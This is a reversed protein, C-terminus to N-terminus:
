IFTLSLVDWFGGGRNLGFVYLDRVCILRYMEHHLATHKDTLNGITNTGDVLLLEVKWSGIKTEKHGAPDVSIPAYGSCTWELNVFVKEVWWLAQFIKSHQSTSQRHNTLCVFLATLRGM